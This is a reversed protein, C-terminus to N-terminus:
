VGVQKGAQTADSVRPVRCLSSLMVGSGKNVKTGALKLTFHLPAPTLIAARPVVSLLM